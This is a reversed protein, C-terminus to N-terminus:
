AKVGSKARRLDKRIGDCGDFFTESTTDTFRIHSNFVWECWCFTPIGTLHLFRNGNSELAPAIAVSMRRYRDRRPEKKRYCEIEDSQNEDHDDRYRRRM